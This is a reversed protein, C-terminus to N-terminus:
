IQKITFNQLVQFINKMLQLKKELINYFKKSKFNSLFMKCFYM